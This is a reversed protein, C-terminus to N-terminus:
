KGKLANIKATLLDSAVKTAAINDEIRRVEDNTQAIRYLQSMVNLDLQSKELILGQIELSYNPTVDAM